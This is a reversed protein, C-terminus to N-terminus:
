LKLEDSRRSRLLKSTTKANTEGCTVTSSTSIPKSRSPTRADENGNAAPSSAAVSATPVSASQARRVEPEPAANERRSGWMDRDFQDLDAQKQEPTRTDENGNAAPSSATVSATTKPDPSAFGFVKGFDKMVLDRKAALWYAQAKSDISLKVVMWAGLITLLGVVMALSVIIIKSPGERGNAKSGDIDDTKASKKAPLNSSKSATASM